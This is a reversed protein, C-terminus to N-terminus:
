GLESRCCLVSRRRHLRFYFREAVRPLDLQLPAIERMPKDDAQPKTLVTSMRGLFIATCTERPNIRDHSLQALLTPDVMESSVRYCYTKIDMM